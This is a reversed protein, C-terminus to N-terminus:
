LRTQLWRFMSRQYTQGTVPAIGGCDVPDPMWRDNKKRDVSSPLSRRICDIRVPSEGGGIRKAKGFYGVTKTM